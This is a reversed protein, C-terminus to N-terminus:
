GLTHEKTQLQEMETNDTQKNITLVINYANSMNPQMLPHYDCDIISDQM